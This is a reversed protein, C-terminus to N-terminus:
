SEHWDPLALLYSELDQGKQPQPLFGDYRVIDWTGSKYGVLCPHNGEFRIYKEWKEPCPFGDYWYCKTWDDNSYTFGKQLLLVELKEDLRVYLDFPQNMDISGVHKHELFRVNDGMFDSSQRESVGLVLLPTCNRRYSFNRAAIGM